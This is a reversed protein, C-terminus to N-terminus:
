RTWYRKSLKENGCLLDPIRNVLCLRERVNEIVHATIAGDMMRGLYARGLMPKPVAM